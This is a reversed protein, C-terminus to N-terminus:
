SPLSLRRYAHTAGHLILLGCPHIEYPIMQLLRSQLPRYQPVRVSYSATFFLYDLLPIQVFGVTLNTGIFSCAPHIPHIYDLEFDVQLDVTLHQYLLDALSSLLGAWDFTHLYGFGIALFPHEADRRQRVPYELLGQILHKFRYKLRVELPVTVSEAGIAVGM